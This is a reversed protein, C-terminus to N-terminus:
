KPKTLIGPDNMTHALTGNAGAAFTESLVSIDDIDRYDLRLTPGDITINVFGNKGVKTGDDLPYARKEDGDYLLLPAKIADPRALEVPMGSHGVCRGYFTIGDATKYKDYIGLRHEHGWIWVIEQKQFFEALQSAPKSYEEEDPFATFYQHHSLLLTPKANEAPKVTNRLWDIIDNELHCDAGLFPIKKIIPISGLIPVGVSNYGTDIALIRWSPTELCFFSAEQGGPNGQMGLTKLFTQFYPRGNAYMEHNGNLAFSGQSGKPWNVGTYGNMTMGLCKEQIEHLDGVYYVDGLHITIDPSTNAIRNAIRFAEDTGTGWDGAISIRIANSGPAPELSYVGKVLSNKYNQFHWKRVLGHKIIPWVWAWLNKPLFAKLKPYNTTPALEEVIRYFHNVAPVRGIVPSQSLTLLQSTKRRGGPTRNPTSPM